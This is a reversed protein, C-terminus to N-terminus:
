YYFDFFLFSLALILINETREVRSGEVNNEEFIDWFLIACFEYENLKLFIKKENKPLNQCKIRM